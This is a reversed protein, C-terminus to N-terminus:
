GQLTRLCVVPNIGGAMGEFQRQLGDTLRPIPILSLPCPTFDPVPHPTCTSLFHPLLAGM